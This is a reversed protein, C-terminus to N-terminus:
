RHPRLIDDHDCQGDTWGDADRAASRPGSQRRGERAGFSRMTVNMRRAGGKRACSDCVSVSIWPSHRVPFVCIQYTVM